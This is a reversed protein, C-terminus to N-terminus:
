SRIHYSMKACGEGISVACDKAGADIRTATENLSFTHRTLSAMKEGSPFIGAYLQLICVPFRDKSEFDFNLM